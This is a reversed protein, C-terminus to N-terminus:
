TFSCLCSLTINDAKHRGQLPKAAFPALAAYCSWKRSRKDDPRCFAFACVPQWHEVWGAWFVPRTRLHCVNASIAGVVGLLVTIAHLFLGVRGVM